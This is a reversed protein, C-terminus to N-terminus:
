KWFRGGPGDSRAGGRGNKAKKTWEIEPWHEKLQRQIHKIPAAGWQVNELAEITLNVTLRSPPREISDMMDNWVAVIKRQRHHRGLMTYYLQYNIDSLIPGKKTVPEPQLVRGMDEVSDDEDQGIVALNQDNGGLVYRSEEVQECQYRRQTALYREVLEITQDVLVSTATSNCAQLVLSLSFQNPRIRSGWEGAEIEQYIQYVREPQNHATNARMLEHLVSLDIMNYKLWHQKVVPRSTRTSLGSVGTARGKRRGSAIAMQRKLRERDLRAQAELGELAFREAQKLNGMRGWGKVYSARVYCDKPINALSLDTWLQMGRDMDIQDACAELMIRYTVNNPKANKSALMEKYLYMMAPLPSPLTSLYQMMITYLQTDVQARNKTIATFLELVKFVEEKVFEQTLQKGKRKINTENIIALLLNSNNVIDQASLIGEMSSVTMTTTPRHEMKEPDQQSHVLTGSHSLQGLIELAGDFDGRKACAYLLIAKMRETITLNWEQHMRSIYRSCAQIDGSRAACLIAAKMTVQRPILDNALMQGIVRDAQAENGSMHSLSYLICDYVEPEFKWQVSQDNMREVIAFVDQCGERGLMAYYRMLVVHMGVTAQIGFQRPLTDLMSRILHTHSNVLVKMVKTLWVALDQELAKSGWIGTAQSIIEPVVPETAEEAATNATKCQPMYVASWDELVKLAGRWDQQKTESGTFYSYQIMARSKGIADVLATMPVAYEKGKLTREAIHRLVRERHQELQELRNPKQSRRKALKSSTKELRNRHFLQILKRQANFWPRVLDSPLTRRRLNLYTDLAIKLDQDQLAKILRAM